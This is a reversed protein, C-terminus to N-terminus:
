RVLYKKAFAKPKPTLTKNFAEADVIQRQLILLARRGAYFL